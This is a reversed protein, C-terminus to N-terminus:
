RKLLNSGPSPPAFSARGTSAGSYLFRAALGLRHGHAAGNLLVWGHLIQSDADVDAGEVGGGEDIADDGGFLGADFAGPEGTTAGSGVREGDEGSGGASRLVDEEASGDYRGERTMREREDLAGDGDIRERGPAQAEADARAVLGADFAHEAEGEFPGELVQALIQLDELGCEVFAAHIEIAFSEVGM